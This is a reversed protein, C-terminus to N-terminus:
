LQSDLNKFVEDDFFEKLPMDLSECIRVVTLLKPNKSKDSIISQLTSQTLGSMIALKNISINKEDCLNQIRKAVAKSILM